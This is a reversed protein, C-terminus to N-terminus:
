KEEEKKETNMNRQAAEYDLFYLHSFKRFKELISILRNLGNEIRNLYKAQIPTLIDPEMSQKLLDLYGQIVTIPQNIEHTATASVAKVVEEKERAIKREQSDKIEDFSRHMEALTENLQFNYDKIMDMSRKLRIHTRVRAIIEADEFPKTIYDVAGMRFGEVKDELHIKATLFIIPIEATTPDDKIRKCVEFGDIDGLMIDLLILDPPNTKVLHLADEGSTAVSFSYDGDKLIQHLIQVNQPVDDVLMILPKEHHIKQTM